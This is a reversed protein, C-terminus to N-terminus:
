RGDAVFLESGTARAVLEDFVDPDTTEAGLAISKNTGHYDSSGTPLLNLEKALGRLEDRTAPDHNPHDVELGTLGRDALGAIIEANVTPGRSHAFAHALVTVGGAAVIMDIAEGVPTDTRPLYYGRGSGLYAVFAENVDSVLGARVLARALHPRGAPADAGLGDMLEDPDIPVGDAAMREAMTRLRTRRETRLRTHEAVIAASAPDFLYALLHVSIKRGHGNDSVCSFEVGPVLTLGAPLAAAAQSWGETTDHDTLAVVDLGAKDAALVLEAPTDTGDSISSHTHLDIRRDHASM